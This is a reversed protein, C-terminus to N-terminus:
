HTHRRVPRSLRTDCIRCNCQDASSQVFHKIGEAEEWARASSEAEERTMWFGPNHRLDGTATIWAIRFRPDAMERKEEPGWGM